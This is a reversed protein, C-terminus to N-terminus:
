PSRQGRKSCQTCVLIKCCAFTFSLRSSKASLIRSPSASTSPFSANTISGYRRFKGFVFVRGTVTWEDRADTMEQWAAKVVGSAPVFIKVPKPVRAKEGKRFEFGHTYEEPEVKIGNVNLDHFTVMEVKGSQKAATFEAPLEFTIGTLSVDVLDPDGIHIAADADTSQTNISVKDKYVKYGRIKDPFDQSFVALRSFLLLLVLGFKNSRYTQSKRTQLGSNKSWLVLPAPIFFSFLRM